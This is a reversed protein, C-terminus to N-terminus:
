GLIPEQFRPLERNSSCKITLQEQGVNKIKEKKERFRFFYSKLSFFDEFTSVVM